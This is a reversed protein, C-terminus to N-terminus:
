REEDLRGMHAYWNQELIGQIQLLCEDRLQEIDRVSRGRSQARTGDVLRQSLAESLRPGDFRAWPLELAPAFQELFHSFGREGGALHYTLFSGMFAWRLGPGYAIAADAEETTAVGEAVLHLMERWMAEMLRDAVFGPIEKRVRLPRMSLARYIEVAADIAGSATHRGGVVEVLPLLYVPNFPHGVLVRRPHRCDAQLDSPLLGSTSSAIVVDPDTAADIQALVGRKLTEDESASEQVFDAGSVADELEATFQLRDVSADAALGQRTLWPWAGAVTQRLWAEAAPSPDSAVVDLGRALFRAAWGAGIVGTGVVAVRQLKSRYENTM